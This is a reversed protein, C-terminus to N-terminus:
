SQWLRRTVIAEARVFAPIIALSDQNKKIIRRGGLDVSKGYVVSKRDRNITTEGARARRCSPWCGAGSGWFLLVFSPFSSLSLGPAVTPFLLSSFSVPVM